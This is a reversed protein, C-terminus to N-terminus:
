KCLKNHQTFGFMVLNKNKNENPFFIIKLIIIMKYYNIKDMVLKLSFIVETIHRGIAATLVFNDVCQLGSQNQIATPNELPKTM